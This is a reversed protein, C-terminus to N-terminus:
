GGGGTYPSWCSLAVRRSEDPYEAPLTFTGVASCTPCRFHDPYLRAEDLPAACRPCDTRARLEDWGPGIYHEAEPDIALLDGCKSCQYLAAADGYDPLTFTV